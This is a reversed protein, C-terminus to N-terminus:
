CVVAGLLNTHTNQQVGVLENRGGEGVGLTGKKYKVPFDIVKWLKEKKKPGYFLNLVNCFM